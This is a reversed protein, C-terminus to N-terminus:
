SGPSIVVMYKGPPVNPFVVVEEGEAVAATMTHDPVAALAAVEHSSPIVLILPTEAGPAVPFYVRLRGDQSWTATVEGQDTHGHAVQEGTVSESIVIELVAALQGPRADPRVGKIAEAIQESRPRLVLKEYDPRVRGRIERLLQEPVDASPISELAVSGLLREYHDLQSQIEPSAKLREFDALEEPTADPAPGALLEVLRDLSLKATM